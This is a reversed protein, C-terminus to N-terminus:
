PFSHFHQEVQTELNGTPHRLWEAVSGVVSAVHCNLPRITSLERSVNM